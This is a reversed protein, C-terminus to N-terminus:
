DELLELDSVKWYESGGSPLPRRIIFPIKSQKLEMEAIISGDIINNPINVFPESGNNIQKARLGLIRAKEYKTLFPLTTHLEDVIEGNKNRVIKSQALVENYSSYKTEPHYELLIDRNLENDLKQFTENDEDESDTEEDDESAVLNLAEETSIVVNEPKTEEDEGNKQKADDDEIDDNDEDDDEDDEEDDTNAIQDREYVISNEPNNNEIVYNESGIVPRPPIRIINEDGPMSISDDEFDSDDDKESLIISDNDPSIKEELDTTTIEQLESM